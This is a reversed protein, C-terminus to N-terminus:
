LIDITEPFVEHAAIHCVRYPFLKQFEIWIWAAPVFIAATRTVMGVPNFVDHHVRKWIHLRLSERSDDARFAAAVEATVGRFRYFAGSLVGIVGSLGNTSLM